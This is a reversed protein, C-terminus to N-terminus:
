VIIAAVRLHDVGSYGYINHTTYIPTMLRERLSHAHKSADMVKKNAEEYAAVTADKDGVSFLYQAKEILADQVENEGLNEVADKHKADCEVVKAAIREITGIVRVCVCVCM